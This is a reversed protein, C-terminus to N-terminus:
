TSTPESKVTAQANATGSTLYITDDFVSGGFIVISFKYSGFKDTQGEFGSAMPPNPANDGQYGLGDPYYYFWYQAPDFPAAFTGSIHIKAYPIPTGDKYKATVSFNHTSDSDSKLTVANPTITLSSGDPTVAENGCGQLLIAPSILMVLALVLILKATSKM